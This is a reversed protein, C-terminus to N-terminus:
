KTFEKILFVIMGIYFPAFLVIKWKLLDAKTESIEKRVLSIDPKLLSIDYKSALFKKESDLKDIAQVDIYETIAKAETEGIKQRLLNFLDINSLAIM